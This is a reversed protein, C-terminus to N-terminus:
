DKPSFHHSEGPTSSWVTYSEGSRPAPAPEPAPPPPPPAERAAEPAAAFSTSQPPTPPAAEGQTVQDGSV